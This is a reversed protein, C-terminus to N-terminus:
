CIEFGGSAVCFRAFKEVENMDFEYEITWIAVSGKGSYTIKDPQILTDEELDTEDSESCQDDSSM